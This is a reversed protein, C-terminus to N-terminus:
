AVWLYVVKATFIEISQSISPNILYGTAIGYTTRM